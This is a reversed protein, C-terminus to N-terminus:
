ASSASKKDADDAYDTALEEGSKRIFDLINAPELRWEASVGFIEDPM